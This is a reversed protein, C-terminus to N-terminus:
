IALAFPQTPALCCDSVGSSEKATLMAHMDWPCIRRNRHKRKTEYIINEWFLKNELGYSNYKGGDVPSSSAVEGSAV